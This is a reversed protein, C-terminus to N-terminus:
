SIILNKAISFHFISIYWIESFKEIKPGEILRAGAKLLKKRSSESKNDFELIRVCM